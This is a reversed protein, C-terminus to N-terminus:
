YKESFIMIFPLEFFEDISKSWFFTRASDGRIRHDERALFINKMPCKKKREKRKRNSLTTSEHNSQSNISTGLTLTKSRKNDKYRFGKRRTHNNTWSTPSVLLAAAASDSNTAAMDLPSVLTRTSELRGEHRKSQQWAFSERQDMQIGPLGREYRVNEQIQLLIINMKELIGHDALNLFPSIYEFFLTWIFNSPRYEFVVMYLRLIVTTFIISIFVMIMLMTLFITLIPTQETAKPILGMVLIQFVSVSILVSLSLSLREGSDAPLYFVFCVLIGFILTPLVINIIYYKSNRKFIFYYKVDVYSHGSRDDAYTRVTKKAPYKKLEWMSNPIYEDINSHNNPIKIDVRSQDNTWCGFKIYCM